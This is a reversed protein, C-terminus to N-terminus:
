IRLISLRSLQKHRSSAPTESLQVTVGATQNSQDLLTSEAPKLEPSVIPNAKLAAMNDCCSHVKPIQQKQGTDHCSPASVAKATQGLSCLPGCFLSLVLALVALRM